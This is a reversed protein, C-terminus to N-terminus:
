TSIMKDNSSFYCKKHTEFIHKLVTIIDTSCNQVKSDLSEMSVESYKLEM